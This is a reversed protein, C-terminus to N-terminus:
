NLRSFDKKSGHFLGESTLNISISLPLPRWDHNVRNPLYRYDRSSAVGVVMLSPQFHCLKWITEYFLRATHVTKVTRLEYKIVNDVAHSITPNTSLAKPRWTIM